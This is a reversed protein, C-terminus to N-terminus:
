AARVEGNKSIPIYYLIWKVAGEASPNASVVLQVSGPECILGTGCGCLVGHVYNAVPVVADVWTCPQGTTVDPFQLWNGAAINSSACVGNDLATAVTTVSNYIQIRIDAAITELTETVFGSLFTVAVKGVITFLDHTEETGLAAAPREVRIGLLGNLYSQMMSKALGM